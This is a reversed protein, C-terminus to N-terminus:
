RCARTPDPVVTVGIVGSMSNFMAAAGVSLVATPGVSSDSDARPLTSAPVTRPM